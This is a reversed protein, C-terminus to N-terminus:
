IKKNNWLIDVMVNSDSSVKLTNEGPVLPFFSSAIDIIDNTEVNNLYVAPINNNITVIDGAEFKQFNYSITNDIEAGTYVKISGLSMGCAKDANGTTGIYLM